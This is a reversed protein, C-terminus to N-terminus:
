SPCPVRLETLPDIADPDGGLSGANAAWIRRVYAAVSEDFPGPACGLSEPDARTDLAVSWLTEGEALPRSPTDPTLGGLAPSAIGDQEAEPVEDRVVSRFSDALDDAFGPPLEVPEALAEALAARVLEDVEAATLSQGGTSTLIATELREVASTLEGVDGSSALDGTRDEVTGSLETVAATDVDDDLLQVTAAGATAVAAGILFPALRWAHNAATGLQALGLRVAAVEDPAIGTRAVQRMLRRARRRNRLPIGTSARRFVSSSDRFTARAERDIEVRLAALRRQVDGRIEGTIEDRWALNSLGLVGEVQGILGNVEAWVASADLSTLVLHEGDVLDLGAVVDDDEFFPEGPGPQVRGLHYSLSQQNTFRRPLGFVDVLRAICRGVTHEENLLMSERGGRIEDEVIVEVM